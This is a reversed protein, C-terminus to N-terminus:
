YKVDISYYLLGFLSFGVLVYPNLFTFIYLTLLHFFLNFFSYM